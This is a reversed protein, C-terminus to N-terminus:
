KLPSRTLVHDIAAQPVVFAAQPANGLYVDRMGLDSTYFGDATMRRALVFFDIGPENEPSRNKKYAIVDLLAAQQAPTASVFDKAETAGATADLWALGSTYRAKLEANVNLLQDIWAAVGAQVAGPKADAPIILDTLRELTAFEHASLAKPGYAGSAVTTQRVAAHAERADVVDFASAAAIAGALRQLMDRRTIESM